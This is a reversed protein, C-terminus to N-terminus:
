YRNLDLGSKRAYTLLDKRLAEAEKRDSAQVEKLTRKGQKLIVFFRNRTQEIIAIIRNHKM